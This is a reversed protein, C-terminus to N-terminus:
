NLKMPALMHFEPVQIKFREGDDERYMWYHGRMSGMETHLRCWSSYAHHLGAPIWPQIGRVGEGEVIRRVGTSETVTWHRSLLKLAHSTGNEIRVRYAFVYEHELPNSINEQYAAVISVRVGHTVISDM